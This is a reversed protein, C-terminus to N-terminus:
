GLIMMKNSLDKFYVDNMAKLGTKEMYKKIHKFTKPKEVKNFFIELKPILEADESQIKEIVESFDMVGELIKFGFITKIKKLLSNRFPDKTLNNSYFFLKYNLKENKIHECVINLFAHTYITKNNKNTFDFSVDMFLDKLLKAFYINTERFLSDIDTFVVYRDHFIISKYNQEQIIEHNKM